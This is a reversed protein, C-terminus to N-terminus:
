WAMIGKPASKKPKKEEDTGKESGEPKNMFGKESNVAQTDETVLLYRMCGCNNDGGNHNGSPLAGERAKNYKAYWERVLAASMCSNESTTFPSCCVGIEKKNRGTAKAVISILASLGMYDMSDSKDVLVIRNVPLTRLENLIEMEAGSFARSMAHANTLDLHAIFAINDVASKVINYVRTADAANVEVVHVSYKFIDMNNKIYQADSDEYHEFNYRVAPIEKVSLANKNGQLRFKESQGINVKVRNLFRLSTVM